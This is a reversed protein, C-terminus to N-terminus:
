TERSRGPKVWTVKKIGVGLGVASGEQTLDDLHEGVLDMGHQGVIPRCCAISGIGSLVAM